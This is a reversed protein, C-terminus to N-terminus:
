DIEIVEMSPAPATIAKRPTSGREERELSASRVGTSEEPKPKWSGDAKVIIARTNLLGQKELSRRVEVLFDDVVLAQPRVDGRCLPCRWCDVVTPWGHHKRKCMQLFTELDFCDRHLCKSGRVPIDFIRCGSYPDFLQITLASSTVAVEDDGEDGGGLSKKVASLSETASIHPISEKIRDQTMVGVVEVALACEPSRSDGKLRKRCVRLANEGTRILSTLDIPLYRGHHLKRRTELKTGNLEFYLEDPWSNDATVWASESAFGGRPIVSCRLRYLLSHETISRSPATGKTQPAETRAIRDMSEQSMSFTVNQTPISKKLRTPPVSFGVVLRYLRPVGPQQELSGLYPSRLHTQHLGSRTWDPNTPQPRPLENARPFILKSSQHSAAPSQPGPRGARLQMGLSALEALQPPMHAAQPLIPSPRDNSALAPAQIRQQLLQVNNPPQYQMNQQLPLRPAQIQQQATMLNQPPRRFFQVAQPPPAFEPFHPNLAHRQLHQKWSNFVGTLVGYTQSIEFPNRRYNYFYYTEQDVSHLKEIAHVGRSDLESNGYLMRAIARFATSQLVPTKLSLIDYLDQVLPPASMRKCTNVFRDWHAPLKNLCAKVSHVRGEYIDRADTRDSYIAMIPEPFDAFFEVLEPHLTDNPCILINLYEWCNMNVDRLSQPLLRPSVTRLCFLQSLVQYFWDGKQVADRLLSIRGSDTPSLLGAQRMQEEKAALQQMLTQPPVRSASLQRSLHANSPM